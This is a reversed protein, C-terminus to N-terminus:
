VSRGCEPCVAEGLGRRDYGCRKCLGVRRRRRERVSLIALVGSPAVFVAPLLWVPVIVYKWTGSADMGPPPMKFYDV